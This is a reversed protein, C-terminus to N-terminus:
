GVSSATTDIDLHLIAQLISARQLDDLAIVKRGRWDTKDPIIDTGVVANFSLWVLETCYVSTSDTLDYGRDFPTKRMLHSEIQTLFLALSEPSIQPRYLGVRTSTGIFRALPERAVSGERALPNGTASIVSWASESGVVVGVHGYRQDHRSVLAGLEGWSKNRGRFLIDGAQLNGEVGAQLSPHLPLKSLPLDPESLQRFRHVGAAVCVLGAGALLSRRKV